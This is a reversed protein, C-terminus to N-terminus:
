DVDDGEGGPQVNVKIFDDEESKWSGVGIRVNNAGKMQILDKGEMKKLEALIEKVHVRHKEVVKELEKPTSDIISEIVSFPLSAAIKVGDNTQVQVNLIKDMSSTSESFAGAVFLVSIMAVIVLIGIWDIRARVRGQNM